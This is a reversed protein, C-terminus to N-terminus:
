HESIFKFLHYKTPISFIRADSYLFSFTIIPGSAALAVSLM